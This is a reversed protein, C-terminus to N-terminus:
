TPFWISQQETTQQHKSFVSCCHFGDWRYPQNRCFQCKAKPGRILTGNHGKLNLSHQKIWCPPWILNSFSLWFQKLRRRSFRCKQPPGTKLPSIKQAPINMNIASRGTVPSSKYESCSYFAGLREPALSTCMWVNMNSSGNKACQPLPTESERCWIKKVVV